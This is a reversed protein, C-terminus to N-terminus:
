NADQVLRIAGRTYPNPAATSYSSQSYYCFTYLGNPSPTSTHYYGITGVSSIASSTSNNGYGPFPLFVCGANQLYGWQEPTLSYYECLTPQYGYYTHSSNGANSEAVSINLLNFPIQPVDGPMAFQDPFIIMGNAWGNPANQTSIRARLYKPGNSRTSNAFYNMEEKTPLRWDGGLDSQHPTLTGDGDKTWYNKANAEVVHSVDSGYFKNMDIQDMWWFGCRFLDKITLNRDTSTTNVFDYANPAVFWTNTESNYRVNGSLIRVRKTASVSFISQDIDESAVAGGVTIAATKIQNRLITTNNETQTKELTVKQPASGDNSNSYGVIKIKLKANEVPMMPIYFSVMRDAESHGAANAGFVTKGGCNLTVTRASTSGGNKPNVIPKGEADFTINNSGNLSQSAENLVIISTVTFANFNTTVNVRLMGCVNYMTMDSSSGEQGQDEIHGVMPVNVKQYLTGGKYVENYTYTTPFTYSISQCNETSANSGTAPYSAVIGSYGQIVSEPLLLTAEAGNTSSLTINTNNVRVVDGNQWMPICRNQDDRDIYVKANSGGINEFKLNLVREDKQCSAMGMLLAAMAVFASIKNTKM